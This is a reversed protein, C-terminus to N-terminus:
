SFTWTRFFIDVLTSDALPNKEEVNLALFHHRGFFYIEMKM